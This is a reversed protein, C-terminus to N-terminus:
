NGVVLDPVPLEFVYENGETDRARVDLASQNSSVRPKLTLTPNESVPEYLEIDALATGDALKVQMENMYFVPIGDALGTDMPHRMRLSLRTSLASERRVIARTQGLTEMWNSIGHAMAPATCGGGAADVEVGNVHWIGDSTKVGVHIPTTQQLKVRFGIFADAELPRLTLIHPIPNLDAVAVIEEVHLGNTELATADVTVPLFFQDEASLPADVIVRQDFVIDGGPFFRNAMSEWMVSDLPDDPLEREVDTAANAASLLMVSLVLWGLALRGIGEPSFVVRTRQTSDSM